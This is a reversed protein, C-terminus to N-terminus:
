DPGPLQLVAQVLVPGFPCAAARAQGVNELGRGWGCGCLKFFEQLMLFVLYSDPIEIELTLNLFFYPKLQTAPLTTPPTTKV